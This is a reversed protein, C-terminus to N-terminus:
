RQDWFDSTGSRSPLIKTNRGTKDHDAANPFFLTTQPKCLPGLVESNIETQQRPGGTVGDIGGSQGGQKAVPTTYPSRNGSMNVVSSAIGQDGMVPFDTTVHDTMDSELM